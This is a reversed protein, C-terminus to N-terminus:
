LRSNDKFLFSLQWKDEVATTKCFLQATFYRRTPFFSPLKPPGCGPAIPCIGNFAPDRQGSIRSPLSTKQRGAPRDARRSAQWPRWAASCRSPATTCYMRELVSFMMYYCRLLRDVISCLGAHLKWNIMRLSANMRLRIKWRGILVDQEFLFFRGHWSHRRQQAANQYTSIASWRTM